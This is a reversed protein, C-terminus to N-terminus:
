YAKAVRQMHYELATMPEYAAPRSESVFEKLPGVCANRDAKVFFPISYREPVVLADGESRSANKLHPPLRVDHLGASVVGNTWREFTESINVVIENRPGPTVPEFKNEFRRDQVELGGVDDQFLCTIIGLDTHPWVRNVDPAGQSLHMAPYHNLRLEDARESCRSTFSGAPVELAIEVAELVSMAFEHCRDYFDELFARM